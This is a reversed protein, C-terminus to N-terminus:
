APRLHGKGERGVDHSVTRTLSNSLGSPSIPDRKYLCLRKAQETLQQIDREFVLKKEDSDYREALFAGFETSARTVPPRPAM